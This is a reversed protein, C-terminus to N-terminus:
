HGCIRRVVDQDCEQLLSFRQEPMVHDHLPLPLIVQLEESKGYNCFRMSEQSYSAIRHRVLQHTMARSGIFRFTVSCHELVSEHGRSVLMRVFREASTKTIRDESKYCTRGAAEIRKPFSMIEETLTLPTASPRVVQIKM